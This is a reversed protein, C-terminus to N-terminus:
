TKISRDKWRVKLRFIKKIFSIFFIALFHISIVPLFLLPWIKFKGIKKTLIFLRLLWLVYFISYIFINTLNFDYLNIVLELMTALISSVFLFVLLGLSFPISLAGFAINKTWGYYLDKYGNPYMRYNIIKNGSYGTFSYGKKHLLLGLAVDEIISDKVESHRNIAIYVEKEILICPGFCGISRPKLSSSNNAGISILNFPISLQEYHRKTKHYPLVTITHKKEEYIAILSEIADKSLRVDADLFLFLDGSAQLSGTQLAWSKGIYNPDKKTITIKKVPFRDIIESTKDTSGDDIVIIEHIIISQNMLDNLLLGISSEENRCPILISIKPVQKLLKKRPLLPIKYYIYFSSIFGLIILIIVYWNMM